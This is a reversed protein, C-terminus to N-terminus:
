ALTWNAGDSVFTIAEYNAGTVGGSVTPSLKVSGSAVGDMTQASTTNITITGTGSNKVIITRGANGVATPLTVTFSNATCNIYDNIVGTYGASKSQYTFGRDDSAIVTWTSDASRYECLIAQNLRSLSGTQAGATTNFKDSGGLQLTLTNGTAIAVLKAGFLTGNAPATPFTLTFSGASVDARVFENAAGTYNATKVDTVSLGL